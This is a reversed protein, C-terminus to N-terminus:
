NSPKPMRAADDYMLADSLPALGDDCLLVTGSTGAIAIGQLNAAVGQPVGGLLALLATRWDQPTQRAPNVYDIRQEHVIAGREDIVCARAGSTGFDLGLRFNM